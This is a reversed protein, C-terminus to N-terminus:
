LSHLTQQLHTHTRTRARAGLQKDHEVREVRHVTVWWVEETWPIRWGLISSHPAINEELPIKGVWPDSDRRECRRCHCTPNKQKKKKVVLAVQSAQLKNLYTQCVRQLSWM